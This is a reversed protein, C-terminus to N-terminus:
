TGAEEEVDIKYDVFASDETNAGIERALFYNAIEKETQIQIMLQFGDHM